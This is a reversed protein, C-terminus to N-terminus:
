GATERAEPVQQIVFQQINALNEVSFKREVHGNLGDLRITVDRAGALRVLQEVTVRYWYVELYVCSRTEAIGLSQQAQIREPCAMQSDIIAKDEFAWETGDVRLTMTNPSVAAFGRLQVWLVLRPDEPDDVRAVNVILQNSLCRDIAVVNGSMRTVSVGLELDHDVTVGKSCSALVVLALILGFRSPERGRMNVGIRM